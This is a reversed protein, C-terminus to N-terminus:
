FNFYLRTCLSCLFIVWFTKRVGGERPLSGGAGVGPGGSVRVYSPNKLAVNGWHLAPLMTTDTNPDTHSNFSYVM